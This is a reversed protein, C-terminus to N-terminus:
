RRRTANASGPARRSARRQAIAATLTDGPRRIKGRRAAKGPVRRPVLKGYCPQDFDFVHIELLVRGSDDVTPRVGLSAVAPLPHPPWATSRCWSSARCRRATRGIRLNLTPFGLTRGLKQGHIVHGSMAYRHGLLQARMTSTARPWRRACRRRRSACATAQDRHAADRGRLRTAPRGREAHRHQRRAPRRLLLRRRGDAMQRAPRRGASERRLRGAVHRRFARQLARRHRPRHRRQVAVRLKDRLNAIRTPRRSLDGSRRAFYERPHPEFTM